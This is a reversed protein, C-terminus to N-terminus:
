QQARLGCNCDFESHKQNRCWRVVFERLIVDWKRVYCDLGSIIRLIYKIILYLSSRKCRSTKWSTVAQFLAPNGSCCQHTRHTDTDGATLTLQSVM